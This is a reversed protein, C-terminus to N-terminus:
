AMPSFCYTATTWTARKSCNKAESLAMEPNSGVSPLTTPGLSPLLNIITQVDETLPTVVYAEGSFAILGTLGDKRTKLLDILKLRSRELRLAYTKRWCVPSM